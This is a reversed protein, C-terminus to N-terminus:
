RREPLRRIYQLLSDRMRSAVDLGSLQAYYPAVFKDYAPLTFFVADVDGRTSGRWARGNRNYATIVMSDIDSLLWPYEPPRWMPGSDLMDFMYITPWFHRIPVFAAPRGADRPTVYPGFFDVGSLSRARRRADEPNSYVGVISYPESLSAVIWIPEGTRYGDAAAALRRLLGASIAPTQQAAPQPDPAASRAMTWRMTALLAGAIVVAPLALKMVRMPDEKPNSEMM